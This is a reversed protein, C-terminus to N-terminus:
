VCQSLDFQADLYPFASVTVRYEGPYTFSLAATTDACAYPTGNIQITCPAPLNVLCAGQRRAPNAPRQTKVGNLVYQTSGDIEGIYIMGGQLEIMSEPVDANFLVRGSDDYKAFTTM